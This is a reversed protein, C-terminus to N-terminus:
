VNEQLTKQLTQLFAEPPQAGSVAYKRNIVFFPVGRVGIHQAEQQDSVVNQRFTDTSIVEEALTQDIGIKQAIELLVNKDAINKGDTFHAKFLEEEAQNDKNEKKALQILRHADMTNAVVAKDLNYHLGAKSAMQTVQSTALRAHELSWGKIEALHQVSNKGPETKLTPDLQYSKWSVQVKDRDSFQELANEFHRKGIYCFPCVVDSWIEVTITQQM